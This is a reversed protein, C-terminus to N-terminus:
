FEGLFGVIMDSFNNGSRASRLDGPWDNVQSPILLGRFIGQKTQISLHRDVGIGLTEQGVSAKSTLIIIAMLCTLISCLTRTTTQVQSSTGHTCANKKAPEVFFTREKRRGPRRFSKRASSGRRTSFASVFITCSECTAIERPTQADIVPSSADSAEPESQGCFAAQIPRLSRAEQNLPRGKPKGTAALQLLERSRRRRRRRRRKRM